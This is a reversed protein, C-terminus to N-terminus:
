YIKNTNDYDRHRAVRCYVHLRSHIGRKANLDGRTRTQKMRENKTM